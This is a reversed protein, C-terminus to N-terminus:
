LKRMAKFFQGQGNKGKRECKVIEIFGRTLLPKM